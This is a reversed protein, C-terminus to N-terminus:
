ALVRRAAAFTRTRTGAPQGDVTPEEGTELWRKFRRLDERLESAPARGLLWSVASGVRGGPPDYQLTVTLETGGRPGPDFRVSGASVLDAGPLSRWALLVGEIENIIEADWEFSTGAPGTFVWRTVNPEVWDVRELGKVFRPLNSLNRWAAWVDAPPKMITIREVLKTGRSGGLATRTDDDMSTLGTLASVPCYGAAGRAILSLGTLAPSSLLRGRRHASALLVVGAVVSALREWDALNTRIRM